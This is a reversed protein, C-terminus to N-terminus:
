WVVQVGSTQIARDRSLLPLNLSLASAAIIRDPLDPVNQRDISELARVVDRTLAVTELSTNGADLYADLATKMESPIRGKETLYVIEVLCITPVFIRSAGADASAFARDAEPGLKDSDELYWILAHTDAVYGSM